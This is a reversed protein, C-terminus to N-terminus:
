DGTEPQRAEPTDLAALQPARELGEEYLSRFRNCITCFLAATREADYIASHASDQNWALGAAAVARALVTQGYAVGGLTATDFCSFPHFPNRKIDARAVAANLFALDFAANHGVLVARTCEADRVAKRIERFLQTLAEKEPMSPRLPHHPDIGNVALSAPDIRSGHFPQVHYRFTAGPRLDGFPTMEVTVAALELLADTKANFGGTEVDVVVPLFGRFRQAMRPEQLSESM